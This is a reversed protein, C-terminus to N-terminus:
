RGALRESLLQEVEEESMASLEDVTLLATTSVTGAANTEQGNVNHPQENPQAETFAPEAAISEGVKQEMAQLLAKALEGVTGTDFAITSSIRAGLGTGKALEARLELAILSDMGLDTLRDRATLEDVAQPLNFVRRITVRVFRFMAEEREQPPLTRLRASIELEADGALAAEQPKWERLQVAKGADTLEDRSREKNSRAILVHQGLEALPSGAAPLAVVPSFGNRELVDKWQEPSLLPHAGRLDDEFHQWGEILGTTMDFWGHHQTSELLVVLGGPALLNQIRELAAALNRSAHVVNAGVIVDFQGVGIGQEQLDRDLDFIAYQVIPFAAFKRRARNLFLESVDTFWYEVQDGPLVPLVASTTGGTGGGIELVRANRRRGISRVAQNVAAAVISNLYRAEPNTEYIGEALTFSGQPFLTELASTKGTLVDGLLEGCQRLYAFIGPNDTLHREAERWYPDLAVSSFDGPARYQLDEGTLAGTAVLGELWRTVLNLYLPQFNCRAMVEDVSATQSQGFVRSEALINHAHALTLRHLAAWRERYNGIVWGLPGQHSQTKAADMTGLWTQERERQRMERPAPGFWYRTRRFPYVPVSVRQADPAAGVDEWRLKGGQIYTAQLQGLRDNATKLIGSTSDSAALGGVAKGGLWQELIQAATKADQARLALRHELSSRATLATFCIDVFRESTERLFAVYRGALEQLSTEHAASLVLLCEAGKAEESNDRIRRHDEEPSAVIVHANTGSFGFSSVGAYLRQGKPWPILATPVELPLRAWEIKPNPNRFHLNPAIGHGPQMMLVVKMLGALGAAAEAHGLNSKVSGIRLREGHERGESYVAALAQVEMPDGLPTGTGHTEVYSVSAPAVQADELAARIVAEQAPGNPATIGASRGDQNVATGAISAWVRDGDRKADALRRLVVVGCGESRVYGDAAADFTKCHGDRSLMRTRSFGVSYEPSLILSAGGVLALDIEGRRLSEIALHVAVLSSSCATDVVLAPGHTGLFYSIRGAAISLSAGVGAYADIERADRMTYRAYDCNSLGLFVGASTNFLTRPDIAAHELAEWSLELLMRQQPDMSAAERPNIGFFEADFADVDALFGGHGDYMTGVHDADPHLYEQVNWREAPVTGILDEGASLANWFREPTAVGGPFRMAMGVIAVPERRGRKSEELEARLQRIEILARKVPSLEGSDGVATQPLNGNEPM